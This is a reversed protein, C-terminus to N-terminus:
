RMKVGSRINYIFTLSDLPPCIGNIKETDIMGNM